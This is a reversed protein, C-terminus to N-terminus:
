PATLTAMNAEIAARGEANELEDYIELAEEYHQQALDDLGLSQYVAGLSALTVGEGSANDAGRHLALAQEYVVVAQELDGATVHVGAINGLLIAETIPDDEYERHIALATQYTDLADSYADQREYIRGILNLTLVEREPNEIERLLALADQHADLAAELDDQEAHLQGIANLTTVQNPRNEIERQIELATQFEELAAVPEELAQYVEGMNSHIVAQLWLDDTAQLAAAYTELATEYDGDLYQSYGANVQTLDLMDDPFRLTRSESLDVDKTGVVRGECNVLVVEYSGPDIAWTREDGASTRQDGHQPQLGEELPTLYIDCIDTDSRNDLTLETTGTCAVLVVMMLLLFAFRYM